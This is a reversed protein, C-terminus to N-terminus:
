CPDYAPIKTSMGKYNRKGILYDNGLYRDLKKFPKDMSLNILCFCM